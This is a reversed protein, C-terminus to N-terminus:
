ERPKLGLEEADRTIRDIYSQPLRLGFSELPEKREQDSPEAVIKGYGFIRETHLPTVRNQPSDPDATEM